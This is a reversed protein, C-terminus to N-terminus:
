ASGNTTARYIPVIVVQVPALAPPLRLGLDDGHQMILGGILRTSVGWSTAYAHELEGDRNLFRVNYAKAFNQGLYHVDRGAAGERRADTGRHM